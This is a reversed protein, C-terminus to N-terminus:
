FYEDCIKTEDVDHLRNIQCEEQKIIIVSTICHHLVEIERKEVEVTIIIIIFCNDKVVGRFNKEGSVCIEFSYIINACASDWRTCNSNLVTAVYFSHVVWRVGISNCISLQLATGCSM